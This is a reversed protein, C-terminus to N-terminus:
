RIFFRPRNRCFLLSCFAVSGYLRINIEAGGIRENRVSSEKINVTSCVADCSKDVTGFRDDDNRALVLDHAREVLGIFAGATVATGTICATLSELSGACEDTFTIVATGSVAHAANYGNM